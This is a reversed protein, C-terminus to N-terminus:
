NRRSMPPPPSTATPSSPPFRAERGAPLVMGAASRRHDLLARRPEHDSPYHWPADLHTGNHTSLQGARGGLGQRGASRREETGPLVAPDAASEAPPRHIRHAPRRGASRGARRKAAPRVPRDSTPAMAHEEQESRELEQACPSATACCASRTSTATRDHRREAPLPRDGARLLQRGHRLRVGRRRADDRGALRLRPNGRVLVAHRRTVGNRARRATSACRSKLTQPDGLRTRRSSGRASCTAATSARARPRGSGGRCKWGNRTARPSITSSRTASSTPPRRPPPFTARAHPRHRDGIELEYDMVRSYRPWRM